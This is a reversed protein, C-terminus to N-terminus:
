YHITKNIDPVKPTIQISYTKYRVTTLNLGNQVIFMITPNYYSFEAFYFVCINTM